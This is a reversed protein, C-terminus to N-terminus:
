DEDSREQYIPLGLIGEIAREEQDRAEDRLRDAEICRPDQPDLGRVWDIVLSDGEWRPYAVDTRKAWEGTEPDPYYGTQVKPSSRVDQRLAPLRVALQRVTGDTMLARLHVLDEIGTYAALHGLVDALRDVHEDREPDGAYLDAFEARLMGRISADLKNGRLVERLEAIEERLRGNALALRQNEELLEAVQSSEAVATQQSDVTPSTGVIAVPQPSSPIMPLPSSSSPRTSAAALARPSEGSPGTGSALFTAAGGGVALVAVTLGLSVARHM